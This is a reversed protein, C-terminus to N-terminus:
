FYFACQDNLKYIIKLNRFYVAQKYGLCNCKPWIFYFCKLVAFLSERLWDLFPWATIKKFLFLHRLQTVVVFLSHHLQTSFPVELPLGNYAKNLSLSFILALESISGWKSLNYNSPFNPQCKNKYFKTKGGSDHIFLAMRKGWTHHRWTFKEGGCM